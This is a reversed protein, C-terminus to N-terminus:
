APPTEPQPRGRSLTSAAGATTATTAILFSSFWIAMAIGPEGFVSRHLISAVLVLGAFAAMALLPVVVDRFDDSFAVLLSGIGFSLFPGSYIQALLGTIPWPWVALMASPLLLLALALGASGLGQLLLYTKLWSPPALPESRPPPPTRIAALWAGAFPYVIYAGFWFWVTWYTSNFEDLHLLSVLLLMGTWVAAMILAIRVDTRRQVAWSGFMLVMGSLYMAGIFRAHLPPVGWPLALDVEAPRLYGWYGVWLAFSGVAAFYIAQRGRDTM